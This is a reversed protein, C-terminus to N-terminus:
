YCILLTKEMSWGVSRREERRCLPRFIEVLLDEGLAKGFSLSRLGDGLLEDVGEGTVGVLVM